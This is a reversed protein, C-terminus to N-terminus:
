EAIYFQRGFWRWINNQDKTTCNLRSRGKNLKRNLRIEIRENFRFLDNEVQGKNDYIFCNINRSLKDDLLSFGIYPPNDSINPNSPIFDYIGLGKANVIFKLRDIDSYKENLSFRPLYYMNSTENIVGSHQGFAAKFKYDNLMDMIKENAEGYPYAFLTPIKGLEKLFIRNSVEIEEKLQEINLKTLHNHSHSHAGILVGEDRLQRIENWNLYNKNNPSITKTSVFLIVPFGLEKLRPWAVNLFSRDADDVSIAITNQPLSADNVITDIISNLSEVNYKSKSLESLHNEFQELTVNTSPYKPKDFKHYMLVVASNKINTAKLSTPILISITSFILLLSLVLASIEKIKM